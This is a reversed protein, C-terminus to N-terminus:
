YIVKGSRCTRRINETRDEPSFTLGKNLGMRLNDGDLILFM